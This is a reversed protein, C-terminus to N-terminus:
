EREQISNLTRPTVSGTVRQGHDRQYEAIARETAPGIQGDIRGHYYGLRKLRAQAVAVPSGQYSGNDSGQYGADKGDYVGDDNQDYGGYGYPYGYPYGYGYAYPYGYGWFPDYFGFDFCFWSGNVFRFHHGHFFHDRNRSWNPHASAPQRAFVRAGGSNFRGNAFRPGGMGARGQAMRSPASHSSSGGSGRFGGGFGGGGGGGFGRHQAQVPLVLALSAALSLLYFKNKMNFGKNQTVSQVWRVSAQQPFHLGDLRGRRLFHRGPNGGKFTSGPILRERSDRNGTEPDKQALQPRYGFAARGARDL